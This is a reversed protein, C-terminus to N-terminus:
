RAWSTSGSSSPLLPSAPYFGASGLFAAVSVLRASGMSVTSCSVAGCQLADYNGANVPVPAPALVQAAIQFQDATGQSRALVLADSSPDVLAATTALDLTRGLFPLVDDPPLGGPTAPPLVGVPRSFFPLVCGRQHLADIAAQLADCFDSRVIFTLP